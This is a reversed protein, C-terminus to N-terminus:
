IQGHHGHRSPVKGVFREWLQEEIQQFKNKIKININYKHM